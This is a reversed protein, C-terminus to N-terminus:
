PMIRLNDQAKLYPEAVPFFITKIAWSCNTTNFDYGSKSVINKWREFIKVEDLGYGDCIKSPFTIIESPPLGSVHLYNKINSYISGLNSIISKLKSIKYNLLKIEDRNKTNKLQVKMININKSLDEFLNIFYNRDNKLYKNFINQNINTNEDLLLTRFKIEKCKFIFKIFNEYESFTASTIIVGKLLGSKVKFAKRDKKDWVNQSSPDRNRNKTSDEELNDPSIDAFIKSIDVGYAEDECDDEFSQFRPPNLYKPSKIKRTKLINYLNNSSVKKGNEPFLKTIKEYDPFFSFYLHYIVKNNINVSTCSILDSTIESCNVIQAAEIIEKKIGKNLGDILGSNQNDEYLSLCEMLDNERATIKEKESANKLFQDIQQPTHIYDEVLKLSRVYEPNQMQLTKKIKEINEKTGSIELSCHGCNSKRLLNDISSKQNHTWAYITVAM